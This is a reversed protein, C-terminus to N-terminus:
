SALREAQFDATTALRDTRRDSGDPARLIRVHVRLTRGTPAGSYDEPCSSGCRDHPRSCSVPGHPDCALDLSVIPVKALSNKLEGTILNTAEPRLSDARQRDAESCLGGAQFGRHAWRGTNVRKPPPFTNRTRSSLLIFLSLDFM